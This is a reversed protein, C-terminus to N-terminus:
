HEHDSKRLLKLPNAPNVCRRFRNSHASPESWVYKAKAAPSNCVAVRVVRTIVAIGSDSDERASGRAAWRAGTCKRRRISKQIGAATKAETKPEVLGSSLYAIRDHGLGVVHDVALRVGSVDDVAVCDSGEEWCSVVVLPIGQARLEDALPWEGSFQLMVIGTARHELLSEIRDQESAAHGDTNCIM